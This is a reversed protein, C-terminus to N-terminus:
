PARWYSGRAAKYRYLGVSTLAQTAAGNVQGVAPRVTVTGAASQKIVEITRGDDRGSRAETLVLELSLGPAVIALDGFRVLAGTVTVLLVRREDALEGLETAVNEQLERLRRNLEPDAKTFEAVKTLTM